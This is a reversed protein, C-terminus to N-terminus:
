IWRLARAVVSVGGLLGTVGTLVVLIGYETGYAGWAQGEWLRTKLLAESLPGSIVNGIGRGTELFAFVMSVDASPHSKRVEASTAAWSSSFSAGTCAYVITFLYLPALHVSLGWLLFTSCVGGVTSILICKTVHYRDALWGILICGFIASINFVTITSSAALGKAGLLGAYSPLFLQPVFFGLSQVVNCAQYILYTRNRHFSLDLQHLNTTTRPLRPRHFLMFPAALLFIAVSCIRLTTQWGYADLLSQLILPFIIGTLGSGSWVIGFALSKKKVFWDPMFLISPAYAFCGATGYAIGQSLILHTVNTSFSSLALSLSLVVFAISSAWRQLRPLAILIAMVIPSLLYAMGMACTGIAAIAHSGQFAPDNRYYNQFVGFCAAFGWVTGEVVFCAALFLWAHLGGDVPPLKPDHYECELDFTQSSETPSPIRSEKCLAQPVKETDMAEM